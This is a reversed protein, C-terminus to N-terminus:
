KKHLGTFNSPVPDDEAPPQPQTLFKGVLGAATIGGIVLAVIRTPLFALWDAPMASWAVAVSTSLALAKTSYDQLRSRWNPIVRAKLRQRITM